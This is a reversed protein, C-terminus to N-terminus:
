FLFSARRIPLEMEPVKLRIKVEREDRLVSFTVEQGQNRILLRYFDSVSSMQVRDCTKLGSKDMTKGPDVSIIEFLEGEPTEPTSYNFGLQKNVQHQTIMSITIELFFLAVLCTGTITLIRNFILLTRDNIKWIILRYVGYFPLGIITVIVVAIFFAFIKYPYPYPPILAFFSTM